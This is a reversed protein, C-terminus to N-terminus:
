HPDMIFLAFFSNMLLLFNVRNLNEHIVAFSYKSSSLKMQSLPILINVSRYIFYIFCGFWNLIRVCIM